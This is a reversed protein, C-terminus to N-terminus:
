NIDKLSGGFDQLIPEGKGMQRAKTDRYLDGEKGDKRYWYSHITECSPCGWQDLMVEIVEVKMSMLRGIISRPVDKELGLIFTTGATTKVYKQLFPPLARLGKPENFSIWPGREASPVPIRVQPTGCVGCFSKPRV